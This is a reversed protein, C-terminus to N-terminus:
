IKRQTGQFDIKFERLEHDNLYREVVVDNWPATLQDPVDRKLATFTELDESFETHRLAEQIEEMRPMLFDFTKGFLALNRKRGEPTLDLPTHCITRFKCLYPYYPYIRKGQPIFLKTFFKTLENDMWIGQVFYGRGTEGIWTESIIQNIIFGKVKKEEVSVERLPIFDSEIFLNQTIYEPTIDNTGQETIEGYHLKFLLNLRMLYLVLTDGIRYVQFFCPKLIEGADFFYTLSGFVGPVSRVLDKVLGRLIALYEQGPRKLTVDHHIPLHPVTIPEPLRVFFDENQSYHCSYNRAAGEGSKIAANIEEDTYYIRIVGNAEEM